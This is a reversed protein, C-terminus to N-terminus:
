IMEYKEFKKGFIAKYVDRIEEDTPDEKDPRTLRDRAHLFDFISQEIISCGTVFERQFQPWLARDPIMWIIEVEDSPPFVKFLMSNTQPEPKTLRPQWILRKTSGDDDTRAHAFIYFARNPGFPERDIMDQVCESIQFNQSTFHKHRDHADLIDVNM